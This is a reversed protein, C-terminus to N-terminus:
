RVPAAVTAREFGVDRDRRILYLLPGASGTALTLLAYPMPSIGRDRADGWLWVLVLTLAILLDTTLLITVANATALEFVGVLGHTYLVYGTLALFDILVAWLLLRKATM